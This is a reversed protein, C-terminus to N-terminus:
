RFSTSFYSVDSQNPTHEELNSKIKNLEELCSTHTMGVFYEPKYGFKEIYTPDYTFGLKEYCALGEENRKRACLYFRTNEPYNKIVSQILKTGIGKHMEGVSVHSIYVIKKADIEKEYFVLFGVATKKNTKSKKYAVCCQGGEEKFLEQMADLGIYSAYHYLNNNATNSNNTYNFNFRPKFVAIDPDLPKNIRTEYIGNRYMAYLTLIHALLRPESREIPPLANTIEYTINTQHHSFLRM